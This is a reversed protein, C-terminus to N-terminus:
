HPLQREVGALRPCASRWYWPFPVLRNDNLALEQLSNRLGNIESPLTTLLNGALVLAAPPSDDSCLHRVLETADTLGEYSFDIADDEGGVGDEM